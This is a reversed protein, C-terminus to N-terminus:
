NDEGIPRINNARMWEALARGRDSDIVGTEDCVFCELRTTEGGQALVGIWGEGACVPCTV